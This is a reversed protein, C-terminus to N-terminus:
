RGARARRVRDPLQRLEAKLSEPNRLASHLARQMVKTVEDYHASVPRNRANAVAARLVALHPLRANLDPEEYLGRLTPPYGANELLFRQSEDGTLFRIFERATGRHASCRSIALNWGGLAGAGPLAAVGYRDRLPSADLRSRAFPWNRLFLARGEAFEALSATEDYGLAAEPIWGRRIGRALMGVGAEAEPADLRDADGGHGWVAELANVTLGEYHNLQAVYGALGHKPGLTAALEELEAWTSPPRRGEAALLDARYYLMGVDARWPVAWLEDRIAPDDRTTSSEVAAPMFDDVRFEARSLPVLYGSAAFGATWVSDLAMVDYCQSRVDGRAGALDQARAMLQARYEDTSRPMSVYTVQDHRTNRENWEDVRQKIYPNRSLDQSDVFTIRGHAGDAPDVAPVGCAVLLCLLWLCRVVRM